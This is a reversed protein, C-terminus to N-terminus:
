ASIIEVGFDKGNKELYTKFKKDFTLFKIKGKEKGFAFLEACILKDEYDDMKIKNYYEKYNKYGLKQWFYEIM